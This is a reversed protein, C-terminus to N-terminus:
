RFGLWALATESIVSLRTIIAHDTNDCEDADISREIRTNKSMHGNVGKINETPVCKLSMHSDM